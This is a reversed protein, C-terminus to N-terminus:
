ITVQIYTVKNSILDQSLADSRDQHSFTKSTEGMRM